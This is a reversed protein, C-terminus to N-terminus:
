PSFLKLYSPHKIGEQGGNNGFAALKALPAMGAFTSFPGLRIPGFWLLAPAKHSPAQPPTWHRGVEGKKDGGWVISQMPAKEVETGPKEGSDGSRPPKIYDGHCSCDVLMCM